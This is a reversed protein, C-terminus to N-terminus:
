GKKSQAVNTGSDEVEEVVRLSSLRDAYPALHDAALHAYRRVMEASEWGGLEQLAFLPTGNQVHWSAWTHRLDHWRFNTIGARELALYWTKTSVQTIPKGRYSFVHTPHKGIQKQVILCAEANLPVAIARRAKAQDPHIWALRRELDVQTWQMGTVNARRLGTALSFAAMDAMHSPLEVLLRQAEERTLYRIRRTPEKLMRIAPAKDIWEWQEVCRRLIARMVELVRNVTANSVGEDKKRESIQDVLTRTISDLYRGGLHKDLWRLHIRDSEISAKHSQEKLWRVVAENWTRRPRDGLKDIRWTEAKLKDHLEQALAKNETETSRRIREGSPTVFDIWWISGRKRLSM